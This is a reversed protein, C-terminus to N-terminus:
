LGASQPTINKALNWRPDDDREYDHFDHDASQLQQHM